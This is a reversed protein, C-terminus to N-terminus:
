SGAEDREDLTRENFKIADQYSVSGDRMCDLVRQTIGEFDDYHIDPFMESVPNKRDLKSDEAINKLFNSIRPVVSLLKTFLAGHYGMKLLRDKSYNLMKNKLSSLRENYNPDTSGSKSFDLITQYADIIGLSEVYSEVMKNPLTELMSVM